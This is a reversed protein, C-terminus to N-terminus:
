LRQCIQGSALTADAYVTDRDPGCDVTDRIGDATHIRLARILGQGAPAM